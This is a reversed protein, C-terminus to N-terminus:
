KERRAYDDSFKLKLFDKVETEVTRMWKEATEIKLKDGASLEVEKGEKAQKDFKIEDADIESQDGLSGEKRAKTLEALIAKAVQLNRQAAEYSPEKKLATEYAEIALAYAKAKVLANGRNFHAQTTELEAFTQAAEEYKGLRYLAIGKWM